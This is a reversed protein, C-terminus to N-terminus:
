QMREPTPMWRGIPVSRATDNWREIQECLDAGVPHEHGCRDVFVVAPSENVREVPLPPINAPASRAWGSVGNTFANNSLLEGSPRWWLSVYALIRALLKMM